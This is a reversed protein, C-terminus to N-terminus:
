RLIIRGGRWRDMMKVEPAVTDKLMEGLVEGLVERLAAKITEAGAPAAAPVARPAAPPAPPAQPRSEEFPELVIANSLVQRVGAAQFRITMREGDGVGEVAIVEGVGYQSSYVKDGVDFRRQM